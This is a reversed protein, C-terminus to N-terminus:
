MVVLTSGVLFSGVGHVVDIFDVFGLVFVFTVSLSFVPSGLHASSVVRTCPMVLFPSYHSENQQRPPIRICRNYSFTTSLALLLDRFLHAIVYSLRAPTTFGPEVANSVTGCCLHEFVSSRSLAPSSPTAHLFALPVAVFIHLSYHYCNWCNM